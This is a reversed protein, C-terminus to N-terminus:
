GDLKATPSSPLPHVKTDCGVAGEEQGQLGCLTVTLQWVSTCNLSKGPLHLTVDDRVGEVSRHQSHDGRNELARVAPQEQPMYQLPM